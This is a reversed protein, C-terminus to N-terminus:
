PSFTAQGSFAESDSRFTQVSLSDLRLASRRLYSVAALFFRIGAGSSSDNNSSFALRSSSIGVHMRGKLRQGTEGLTRRHRNYCKFRISKGEIRIALRATVLRDCKEPAFDSDGM